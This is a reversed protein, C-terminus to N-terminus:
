VKLWSIAADADAATLGVKPDTQVMFGASCNFPPCADPNDDLIVWRSHQHATLWEVLLKWRPVEDRNCGTTGFVEGHIGHTRLLATFGYLDMHGSHILGRLSSTLVIKAGTEDVIRNFQEVCAPEFERSGRDVLPGLVGHVDLFLIKPQMTRVGPNTGITWARTTM